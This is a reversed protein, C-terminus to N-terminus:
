HSHPPLLLPYITFQPRTTIVNKAAMITPGNSSRVPSPCFSFCVSLCFIQPANPALAISIYSVIFAFNFKPALLYCDRLVNLVFHLRQSANNNCTNNCYNHKTKYAGTNSDHQEGEKGWGVLHWFNVKIGSHPSSAPLIKRNDGVSRLKSFIKNKCYEENM